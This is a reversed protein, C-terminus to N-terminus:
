MNSYSPGGGGEPPTWQINQLPDKIDCAKCHLCNQGHIVLKKGKGDNTTDIYEYVNAPCYYQEPGGYIKYTAVAPIKPNKLSLHCPQDHEHKVGSYYLSDSISFTRLGDAKPYRPPVSQDAPVLHEHDQMGKRMRLTWPAGGRLILADIGNYVMGVLRGFQSFAPRINRARYLEERISSEEVSAHYADMNYGGKSTKLAKLAQDAALIGSEIATHVGKLKAANLMGAGDGILSGGPFALYPMSQLGGETLCRAGYEICEGGNLLKAVKPHNKLKQFEGFPSLFPNSYDLATVLGVSVLGGEMHYCFAGGHVGNSLPYGLSHWVNGARHKSPDIRWIEKIGLAYTQPDAKNKERLSFQKMVAESVSGRCGEALLTLKARIKMGEVYTPKKEGDRDRGFEGTIVGTVGHSIGKDYLAERASFGPFIEVGLEEAKKGMWRTLQSLSVVYNGKNKMDRAKPLPLALSKTLFYLSDQTVKQRVPCSPDDKWEEYLEDLSSAELVCGSITHAGVQAGKELVCVSVDSNGQKLRAAAALGAPGAGVICVDVELSNEDVSSCTTQTSLLRLATEYVLAGGQRGVPQSLLTKRLSLM